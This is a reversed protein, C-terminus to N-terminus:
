RAKKGDVSLSNHKFLEGDIDVGFQPNVLSVQTLVGQADTIEWKKLSLPNDSFILSVEGMAPEDRDRMTVRLTGLEKELSVVELDGGLQVDERVLFWLPTEWLPLYSSQKLERDYYLLTLGNAILLITQPPDYEFRMKGPRDVLVEGESYAGNSSIQVFRAQMSDLQNLYDEVRALDAQESETIAAMQTPLAPNGALSAGGTFVGLAAAALAATLARKLTTRAM